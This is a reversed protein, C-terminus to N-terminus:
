HKSRRTKRLKAQKRRTMRRGGFFSTPTKIQSAKELLETAKAEFLSKSAAYAEELSQSPDRDWTLTLIMLDQLEKAMEKTREVASELVVGNSRLTNFLKLTQEKLFADAQPAVTATKNQNRLSSKIKLSSYLVDKYRNKKAANNALLSEQWASRRENLSAAHLANRETRKSEIAEELPALRAKQEPTLVLEEFDRPKFPPRERSYNALQSRNTRFGREYPNRLRDKLTHNNGFRTNKLANENTLYSTKRKQLSSLGFDILVPAVIENGNMTIFINQPHLDKHVFGEDHFIQLIDNIERMLLHYEEELFFRQTMLDQLTLGVLREMVIFGLPRGTATSGLASGYFFPVFPRTRPNATLLKMLKVENDFTAKTFPEMNSFRMAKRLYEKGKYRIPSTEGFMGAGLQLGGKEAVITDIDDQSLGSIM